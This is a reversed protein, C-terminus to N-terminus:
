SAAIASTRVSRACLDLGGDHGGAVVARRHKIGSTNCLHKIRAYVPRVDGAEFELALRRRHRSRATGQAEAPCSTGLRNILM